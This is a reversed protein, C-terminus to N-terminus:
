ILAIPAAAFAERATAAVRSRGTAFKKTSKVKPVCHRGLCGQNRRLLDTHTGRQAGSSPGDACSDEGALAGADAITSMDSGQDSALGSPITDTGPSSLLSNQRLANPTAASNRLQM